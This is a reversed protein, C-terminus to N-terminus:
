SGTSPSPSRTSGRGPSRGTSKRGGSARSASSATSPTTPREAFEAFIMDVLGGEPNNESGGILDGYDIKRDWVLQEIFAGGEDGLLSRILRFVATLRDSGKSNLVANLLAGQALTPRRAIFVQDGIPVEVVDEDEGAESAEAAIKFEIAM